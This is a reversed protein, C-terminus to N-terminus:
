LSINVFSDGPYLGLEPTFFFSLFSSDPYKPDNVAYSSSQFYPM